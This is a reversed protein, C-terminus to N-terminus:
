DHVPKGSSCGPLTAQLLMSCQFHRRFVPMCSSFVRAIASPNGHFILQKRSGSSECKNDAHQVDATLNRQLSSMVPGAMTALALNQLTLGELRDDDIWNTALAAEEQLSLQALDLFDSKSICDRPITRVQWETPVVRERSAPITELPRLLNALNHFMRKLKKVRLFTWQCHYKRHLCQM